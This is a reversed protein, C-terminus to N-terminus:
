IEDRLAISLEPIVFGKYEIKVKFISYWYKPEKFADYVKYCVLTEINTMDRLQPIIKEKLELYEGLQIEWIPSYVDREINYKDLVKKKKTIAGFIKYIEDKEQIYIDKLNVDVNIGHPERKQIIVGSLYTYLFEFREEIEKILQEFSIIIVSSNNVDKINYNTKGKDIIQDVEYKNYYSIGYRGCDKLCVGVFFSDEYNSYLVMVEIDMTVHVIDGSKIDM